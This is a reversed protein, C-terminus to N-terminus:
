DGRNTLKRWLKRLNPPALDFIIGIFCILQTLVCMCHLYFFVWWILKEDAVVKLYAFITLVISLLLLATVVTVYWLKSHLKM